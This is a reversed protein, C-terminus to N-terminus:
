RGNGANSVQQRANTILANVNPSPKLPPAIYGKELEPQRWPSPPPPLQVGNYGNAITKVGNLTNNLANGILQPFGGFELFGGGGRKGRRNRKLTQKRRKGGGKSGLAGMPLRPILGNIQDPGPGYNGTVAPQIGGVMGGHRSLSFHNSRAGSSTLQNYTNNAPPLWSGGVLTQRGWGGFGGKKSKSKSKSRRKTKTM